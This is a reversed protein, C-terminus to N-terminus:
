RLTDPAAARRSPAARSITRVLDILSDMDDSLEAAWKDSAAVPAPHPPHAVPAATSSAAPLIPPASGWFANSAASVSYGLLFTSIFREVRPVQDTPVGADSLMAYVAEVVAIAEPAVYVRTLLLPVVTPYRRALALVEGALAHLRQEWPGDSPIQVEALVRGVLGDLLAEKSSVHRYLAMVTVGVREAVARMSLGALGVDQAVELAADLIEARRGAM